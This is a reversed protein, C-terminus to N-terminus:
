RGHEEVLEKLEHGIPKWLHLCNGKVNVYESKKPHIQYVEEEEDFFIDKLVCMDEWTPMKFKHKPSVSVHEYGCENNSYVVSCGGCDPLKVLGCKMMGLSTINWIKGSNEIEKISKM